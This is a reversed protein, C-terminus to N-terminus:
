VERSRQSRACPNRAIAFHGAGVFPALDTNGNLNMNSVVIPIDFGFASQAAALIQALGRSTYDFEHNGQTVCDYLMLELFLLALPQRGLTLDYLTGKTVYSRL